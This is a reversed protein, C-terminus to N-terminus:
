QALLIYLGRGFGVVAGAYLLIAVAAQPKKFYAGLSEGKQRGINLLFILGFCVWPGWEFFGKRINLAACLFM